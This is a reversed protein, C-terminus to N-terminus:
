LLSKVMFIVIFVTLIWFNLRCNRSIDFDNLGNPKQESFKTHDM